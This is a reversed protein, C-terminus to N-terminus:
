VRGNIVIQNSVYSDRVGDFDGIYYISDKPITCKVIDYEWEGKPINVFSHYGVDICINDCHGLTIGFEVIPQLVGVIHLTKRYQSQYVGGMDTPKMIKYCVIDKEAVLPKIKPTIGFIKQFINKPLNDRYITLCM